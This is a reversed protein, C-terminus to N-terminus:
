FSQGPLRVMSFTAGSVNLLGGSTQFADIEIYDGKSLKTDWKGNLAADGASAVGTAVGTPGSNFNGNKKFWLYRQGTTNSAYRITASMTYWGSQPATFRSTSTVFTGTDDTVTTPFTILTDTANSISQNTTRIVECGIAFTTM